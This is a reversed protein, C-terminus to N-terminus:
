TNEKFLRVRYLRDPAEKLPIEELSIEHTGENLVGDMFEEPNVVKQLRHKLSSMATTIIYLNGSKDIAMTPTPIRRGDGEKGMVFKETEKIFRLANNEDITLNPMPISRSSLDVFTEIDLARRWLSKSIVKKVLEPAAYRLLFSVEDEPIQRLFPGPKYRSIYPSVNKGILTRETIADSLGPINISIPAKVLHKIAIRSDNGASDPSHYELNIFRIEGAFVRASGNKDLTVDGAELESFRVVEDKQAEHSRLLFETKDLFENNLFCGEEMISDQHITIKKPGQTCFAWEMFLVPNVPVRLNGSKLIISKLAGDENKKYGDISWSGCVAEVENGNIDTVTLM